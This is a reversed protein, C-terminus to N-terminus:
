SPKETSKWDEEFYAIHQQEIGMQSIFEVQIMNKM